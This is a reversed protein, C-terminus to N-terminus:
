VYVCMCVRVDDILDVDLGAYLNVAYASKSAESDRGRHADRVSTDGSRDGRPSLSDNGSSKTPSTKPRPSHSRTGNRSSSSAQRNANSSGQQVQGKQQM